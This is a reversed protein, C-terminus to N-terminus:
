LDGEKPLIWRKIKDIFKEKTEVMFRISKKKKIEKKLDTTAQVAPALADDVKEKIHQPTLRLMRKMSQIEEIVTSLKVRFDELDTRDHSLDRDVRAVEDRTSQLDKKLDRIEELIVKLQENQM